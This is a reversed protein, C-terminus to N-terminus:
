LLLVTLKATRFIPFYPSVYQGEKIESPITTTWTAGQDILKDTAWKGNDWGQQEIKFWKADSAQFSKCDGNCDAMMITIPGAHDLM